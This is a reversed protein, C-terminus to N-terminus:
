FCIIYYSNYTQKITVPFAHKQKRAKNSNLMGKTNGYLKINVETQIVNLDNNECHKFSTKYM